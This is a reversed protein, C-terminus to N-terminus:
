AVAWPRRLRGDNTACAESARCVVRPTEIRTEISPVRRDGCKRQQWCEMDEGEVHEEEEEENYMICCPVAVRKSDDCAPILILDIV